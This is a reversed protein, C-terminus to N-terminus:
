EEEVSPTEKLFTDETAQDKRLRYLTIAPGWLVYITLIFFLMIRPKYAVVMSALIIAVLVNFPKQKKL